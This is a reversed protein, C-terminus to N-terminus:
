GSVARVHLLWCGISISPTCPRLLLLRVYHTWLKDVFDDLSPLRSGARRLIHVSLKHFSPFYSAAGGSLPVTFWKLHQYLGHQRM